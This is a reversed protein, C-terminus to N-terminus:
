TYRVPHWKLALKRYSKRIEEDSAKESVELVRYFSEKKESM